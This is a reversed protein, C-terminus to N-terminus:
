PSTVGAWPLGLAAASAVYEGIQEFCLDGLDPRGRHWAQYWRVTERITREFTWVPRWDLRRRAKESSLTLFSTEHAAGPSEGLVCAGSGWEALVQKTLELVSRSSQPDPGFNWADDFFRDGSSIMRAALLLYGSLPELVHQWPRVSGPNRVEVPREATLARVCDPVIRDQSWDGGGVVNGARATAVRVRRDAAVPAFFSRRYSATVLEACAKSASYPDHGGLRDTERYGYLWERNEYCKDTTVVVVVCPKGARRVGELVHATGLVNTQFTGLPDAYSTRVLPQAALHFVFDPAVQRVVREVFAQDRVDGRRDDVVGSLEALTFLNPESCPALALGAVRGGFSSLWLSLWSGKFGTHGTVLISRDRFIEAISPM